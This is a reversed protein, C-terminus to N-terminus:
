LVSNLFFLFFLFGVGGTGSCGRFELIEGRGRWGVVWTDVIASKPQPVAMRERM